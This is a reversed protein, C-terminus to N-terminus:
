SLYIVRSSDLAVLTGDLGPCSPSSTLESTDDHKHPKLRRKYIHYMDSGLTRMLRGPVVAARLGM